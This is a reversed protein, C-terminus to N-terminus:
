EGYLHSKKTGVLSKMLFLDSGRKDLVVTTQRRLDLRGGYNQDVVEAECTNRTVLKM